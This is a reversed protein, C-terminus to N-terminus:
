QPIWASTRTNDKYVTCQSAVGISKVMTRITHTGDSLGSKNGSFTITFKGGSVGTPNVFIPPNAVENAGGDFNVNLQCGGGATNNSVTASVEWRVRRGTDGLTKAATSVGDTFVFTGRANIDVEVDTTSSTSKDLTPSVSLMKEVPNFFSAVNRTTANDTYVGSSVTAVGVITNQDGTVPRTLEIGMVPDTKRGSALSQTQLTHAMCCAVTTASWWAADTVAHNLNSNAKSSYFLGNVSVKDGLAYTTANSWVPYDRPTDSALYRSPAGIGYILKQNWDMVEEHLEVCAAAAAHCGPDVGPTLRKGIWKGATKSGGAMPLSGVILTNGSVFTNIAGSMVLVVYNGALYPLGDASTGAAYAAGQTVGAAFTGSLESVVVYDTSSGTPTLYACNRPILVLTNHDNSSRNLGRGNNPCYALSGVKTGVTWGTGPWAPDSTVVFLRGQGHASTQGMSVREGQNGSSGDYLWSTGNWNYWVVGWGEPWPIEGDYWDISAGGSWINTLKDEGLVGGDIGFRLFNDPAPAAAVMGIRCQGERNMYGTGAASAGGPQFGAAIFERWTPLTFKVGKTSISIMAVSVTTGVPPAVLFTVAGSTGSNLGAITYNTSYVPTTTGVLTWWAADTVAHNLNDAQISKYLSTGSSVVADLAYTTAASWVGLDASVKVEVSEIYKAKFYFPFEVRAADGAWLTKLRVVVNNTGVPPPTDFTVTGSPGPASITFGTTQVVGGILVDLHSADLFEYPISFVTKANDGSQSYSFAENRASSTSFVMGCMQPTIHWTPPESQCNDGVFQQCPSKRSSAGGLANSKMQSPNLYTGTAHAPAAALSTFLAFFVALLAVLSPNPRKVKSNNRQM